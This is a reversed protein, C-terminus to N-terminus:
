VTLDGCCYAKFRVSLEFGVITTTRVLRDVFCFFDAKPTEFHFRKVIFETFNRGDSSQNFILWWPFLYVTVTYKNLLCNTASRAV